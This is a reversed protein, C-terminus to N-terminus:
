LPCQSYRLTDLAQAQEVAPPHVMYCPCSCRHAAM